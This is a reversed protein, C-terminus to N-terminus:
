WRVHSPFNAMEEVKWPGTYQRTYQGRPGHEDTLVQEPGRELGGATRGPCVYTADQRFGARVFSRSQPADGGTLDFDPDRKGYVKTVLLM